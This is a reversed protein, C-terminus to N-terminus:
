LAKRKEGNKELERLASRVADRGAGCISALGSVTFDWDDPVSVMIALIAVLFSVSSLLWRRRIGRAQVFPLKELLRGLFASLAGAGRKGAQLGAKGASHLAPLAQEKLINLVGM